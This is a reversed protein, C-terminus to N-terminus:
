LRDGVAEQEEISHFLKQVALEEGYVTVIDNPILMADRSPIGPMFEENRRIALIVVGHDWPRSVRLSQNVIPCNDEIVYESVCYGREIRLLLEYDMARVLGASKLSRQILHELTRTVIGIKSVYLLSVIGLTFLGVIALPHTGGPSQMMTAVLTALASTLGINGAFILDRIIRRRVPHNVVLEAERTTFGVGFFASYSQFSATDTSLGTMTLATTAVRVALLSFIAIVFLTTIATM